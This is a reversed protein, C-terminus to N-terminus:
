SRSVARCPRGAQQTQRGSQQPQLQIEAALLYDGAPLRRQPPQAAQAAQTESDDAFEMHLTHETLRGLQAQAFEAGRVIAGAAQRGHPLPLLHRQQVVDVAALQERCREVPGSRQALKCCVECGLCQQPLLIRLQQRQAM